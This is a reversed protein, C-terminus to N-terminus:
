CRGAFVFFFMLPAFLSPASLSCTPRFRVLATDGSDEPADVPVVTAGQWGIMAPCTLQPRDLMAAAAALLPVSPPEPQCSHSARRGHPPLRHCHSPFRQAHACRPSAPSSAPPTGRPCSGAAGARRRRSRPWAKPAGPVSSDGVDWARTPRRVSPPLRGSAGSVPWCSSLGAAGAPVSTDSSHGALTGAPAARLAPEAPDDTPERATSAQGRHRRACYTIVTHLVALECDYACTLLDVALETCDYACVPNKFVPFGPEDAKSLAVFVAWFRLFISRNITWVAPNAWYLGGATNPHSAQPTVAWINRWNRKRAPSSWHGEHRGM